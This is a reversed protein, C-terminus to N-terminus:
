NLIKKLKNKIRKCYGINFISQTEKFIEAKITLEPFVKIRKKANYNKNLNGETTCHTGSNDLGINYVLSKSPNVSYLNNVYCNLDFVISWSDIKGDIQKKLIKPMKEVWEM